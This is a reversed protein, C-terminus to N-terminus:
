RACKSEFRSCAFVVASVTVVSGGFEEDVLREFLPIARHNPESDSSFLDPAAEGQFVHNLVGGSVDYAPVTPVEQLFGLDVHEEVSSAQRKLESLEKTGM